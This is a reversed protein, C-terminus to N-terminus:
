VSYVLTLLSDIEGPIQQAKKLHIELENRKAAISKCLENQANMDPIPIKISLLDNVNVHPLAAGKILDIIRANIAGTRLLEALYLPEIIDIKPNLVIIETSCLGEDIMTNLWVKNLTPRLRGYLIDGKYFTKCSSKVEASNKPSFNILRGTSAESNEHGAYNIKGDFSEPNVLKRRETAVSGLNFLTYQENVEIDKCSLFSASSWANAQKLINSSIINYYM